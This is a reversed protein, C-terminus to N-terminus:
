KLVVFRGSLGGEPTEVRYLYIGSALSPGRGGRADITVHHSGVPLAPADLITRIWRGSTDFLRVTVRGSTGVYFSLEGGPNIPNPSVSAVMSSGSSVVTVSDTGSFPEGTSLSGTVTLANRGPTLLPDLAERSFRVMLDQKGNRDYDGVNAFRPAPAISGQLRLSAIDISAPAFGSPEIYTTLWKAHDRLNIVSPNFRLNASLVSPRPGINRVISITYGTTASVVDTKGDGNMDGLGDISGSINYTDPQQFTGDGNGLLISVGAAVIDIKGDGNMDGLKIRYGGPYNVSPRFTGDGNGLLVSVTNFTNETIFDLKGDSNVDGLAASSASGGAPSRIPARFTGDGNGLLVSATSGGATVLDLNTDGNMDGIAIEGGRTPYEVYQRFTGDGNGLLVSVAGADAAGHGSTILDPNLDGNVDAITVTLNGGTAFDGSRVFTRDGNNLFVTLVDSIESASVLDPRGDRNLDGVAVYRTSTVPYDTRPRLTADGNGFHVSLAQSDWNASVVDLKGDQDLDAVQIKYSWRATQYVRRSSFTGDGNSLLVTMGGTTAFSATVIDPHGDRNLDGVALNVGYAAIGYNRSAGFTGDGQGPLVSVTSTYVNSAVIDLKGDGTVDSVAVGSPFDMTRFQTQTPFAGDPAGLLVSITASEYADFNNGIVLDPTGDGNLDGIALSIENGWNEAARPARHSTRSGTVSRPPPQPYSRPYDTRAGFTGDGRGPLVSISNLSATVIDPNQDGNVDAIGVIMNAGVGYDTRTFTGDGLNSYVSVSPPEYLGNVVVLDQAGDRNLDGAAVFRPFSGTGYSVPAGFTGDGNGLMVSLGGAIGMSNLGALDLESDGNLDVLLTGLYPYDTKPQFTGDGNGLLVSYGAVLDLNGDGNLDAMAVTAAGTGEITRPVELLNGAASIGPHSLVLSLAIVLAFSSSGHTSM